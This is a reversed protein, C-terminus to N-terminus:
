SVLTKAQGEGFDQVGMSDATSRLVEELRLTRLYQPICVRSLTVYITDCCAGGETFHCQRIHAKEEGSGNINALM